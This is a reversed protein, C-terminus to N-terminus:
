FVLSEPSREHTELEGWLIARNPLSCPFMLLKSISVAVALCSSVEKTQLSVPPFQATM